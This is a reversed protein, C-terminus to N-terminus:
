RWEKYYHKNAAECMGVGGTRYCEKQKNHECLSSGGCEKYHVRRGAMSVYVAAGSEKCRSRGAISV